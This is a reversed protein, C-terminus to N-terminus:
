DSKLEAVDLRWNLTGQPTIERATAIFHFDRAQKQPVSLDIQEHVDSITVCDAEASDEGPCDLARIRLKFESIADQESKNTIRADIQWTGAYAHSAKFFEVSAIEPELSRPGGFLKVGSVLVLLLGVAVFTALIAIGLRLDFYSAILILAVILGILLFHM